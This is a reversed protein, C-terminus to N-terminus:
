SGWSRIMVDVCLGGLFLLGFRRTHSFVFASFWLPWIKEPFQSPREKPRPYAHAKVAQVYGPLALLVVAM